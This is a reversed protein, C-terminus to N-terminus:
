FTLTNTYVVKKADAESFSFKNPLENMFTYTGNINSILKIGNATLKAAVASDQTVIFKKM